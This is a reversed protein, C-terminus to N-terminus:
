LLSISPFVENSIGDSNLEDAVTDRLTLRKPALRALRSSAPGMSVGARMPGPGILGTHRIATVQGGWPSGAM